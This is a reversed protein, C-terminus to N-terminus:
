QSKLQKALWLRLEDLNPPRLAEVKAFEARAQQIQGARVLCNVLLMRADVNGPALEVWKDAQRRVQDVDGRRILLNALHPRYDPMWPNLEVARRWHKLARDDDKMEQATAAAAILASERNPQKTLVTEFAELAASKSQRLILGHGRAQWADVDHPDREIAKKLLKLARDSHAL